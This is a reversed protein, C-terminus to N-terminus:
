IHRGNKEDEMRITMITFAIGGFLLSVSILAGGIVHRRYKSKLVYDILELIYEIREM